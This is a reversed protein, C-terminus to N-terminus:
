EEIEIIVDVHDGSNLHNFTHENAPLMLMLPKGFRDRAGSLGYFGMGNAFNCNGDMGQKKPPNQKQNNGKGDKQNQNENQNDGNNKNNGNNKDSLNLTVSFLRRILLDKDGSRFADMLYNDLPKKVNDNIDRDKLIGDKIEKCIDLFSVYKADRFGFLSKWFSTNVYILVDGDDTIEYNGESIPKSIAFSNEEILMGFLVKAKNDLGNGNGAGKRRM